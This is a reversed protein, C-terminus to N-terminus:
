VKVGLTAGAEHSKLGAAKSLAAWHKEVFSIRDAPVTLVAQDKPNLGAQKRLEQVERILDRLEGEEKLEDTITTDLTVQDTMTNDIVVSKVNVEDAIIQLLDQKNLLKESRVKLMSLPQRVKIGSKQRVDLASTVLARVEEMDTLISDPKKSVFVNKIKSVISEDQLPWDTLHVSVPDTDARLRQYMSEAIFPTFPASLKSVMLLTHRLMGRAADADEGGGKLRDRSRRVFWLSVDGVLDRVERTATYMDYRDLAETVVRVAGDLRAQMWQDLVNVHSVREEGKYMEYYQVSNIFPNFVKNKMETLVKPDFSKGEGPANVSYMWYRILDAGYEDMASFPEIVNGKSKSMKAGTADLLHGLCIVNKYPTGRGMLVGVALLTYFWGRTQDVAESIFDAPYSFNKNEFPYHDQAFPMSGSDFWVDMVEPTRRLEVGRTGVLVVQDIYPKHLDLEYDKNHPLPVFPLPVVEGNDICRLAGTCSLNKLAMGAAVFQLARNTGDHAIILVSKGAYRSEIDYLFEGVRRVLAAFNEHIDEARANSMYVSEYLGDVENLPKGEFKDDVNWERLREDYVIQDKPFGSVDAFIDVSQRARIMPSCIVVDPKKAVFQKSASRIQDEGRKTLKSEEEIARKWVTTTNIESEGHRMVSYVNGSNKIRKKLEEVSGIVVQEKGDASTWVPLPTGWYRERSIAWDKVGSLWEGFRGERIHSPEWNIKKNEAMLSDRLDTMRIYWSDRAYYILRTSCRWCFPYSHEYRAKTFLLGRHSLDKVIDVALEEDLVSRGKFLEVDDTYMGDPRVLHVKPLGEKTGLDFDDTGYMVATHVVGTGDETTVFDASLVQWRKGTHARIKEIEYLPEYQLGVLERGKIPTTKKAELGLAGAREKAVILVEGDQEVYVYEIEAGVALAVNGPLTWPTTTWALIFTPQSLGLKEPNLIRFKATISLDKVDKYGQALEHSSLGTGCRSCWPVVKYDKYLRSDDSVKKVIHWLSEMYSADFTYYANEKDVWYGLRDTFKEWVGIYRYVSERCKENFAEVGYKEIDPKGTFGLEKEIQLEVPLGHTDWGARRRVRYGRMTKYRPIADKFARAELHHLAPAANATPPGEYFVFEGKPAPKNLSQEFIKNETWFKLVEEEKLATDSKFKKHEAQPSAGSDAM